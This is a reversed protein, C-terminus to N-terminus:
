YIPRVFIIIFALSNKRWLVLFLWNKDKKKLVSKKNSLKNMYRKVEENM